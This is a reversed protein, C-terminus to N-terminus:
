VGRKPGLGLSVPRLVFYVMLVAVLSVAVGGLVDTPWHLGIAVRAFSNLIALVTFWLGWKKNFIFLVFALTFFATAHGSPFSVSDNTLLPEFEFFVYPRPRHYFFTIVGMILGRALILSLVTFIVQFFKERIAAGSAKLVFFVAALVLLYPLYRAFFVFVFDLFASRGVLSHLTNFVETEM